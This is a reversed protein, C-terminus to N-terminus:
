TRSENTEGRTMLITKRLGNIADALILASIIVARGEGEYCDPDLGEFDKLMEDCDWILDAWYEKRSATM